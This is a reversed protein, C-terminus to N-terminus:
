FNLEEIKHAFDVDLQTIGDKDHTKASVRIKNWGYLLIDPHHDMKEAILAITNVIGVAGNLRFGLSDSLILSNDCTTVM